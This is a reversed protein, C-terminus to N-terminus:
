LSPHIRDRSNLKIIRDPKSFTPSHVEHHPHRESKAGPNGIEYALVKAEWDM